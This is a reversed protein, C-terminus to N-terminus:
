QMISIAVLLVFAIRIKNVDTVSQANSGFISEEITTSVDSTDECGDCPYLFEDGWFVACIGEDGPSLKCCDSTDTVDACAHGTLPYSTGWQSPPNAYWADRYYNTCLACDDTSSTVTTTPSKTSTTEGFYPVFVKRARFRVVTPHIPHIMQAHM